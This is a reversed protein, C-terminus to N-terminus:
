SVRHDAYKSVLVHAITAETPMGGAIIHAPAPAQAIGSECSRCAYKPRRTIRRVVFRGPIYELEETIDEGIQRLQRMGGRCVFGRRTPGSPDPLPKRSHQRKSLTSDTEAPESKQAEAAGEIEVDEALDFALQDLPESKSGFRAKRHGHLEAKLKENQYTLSQVEAMLRESVVRLEAPDDPLSKLADLM